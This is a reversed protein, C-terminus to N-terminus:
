FHGGSLCQLGKVLFNLEPPLSVPGYSWSQLCGPIASNGLCGPLSGWVNLCLQAWQSGSLTVGWVGLMVAEGASSPTAGFVWSHSPRGLVWQSYGRFVWAHSSGIFTVGMFPLFSLEPHPATQLGNLSFM